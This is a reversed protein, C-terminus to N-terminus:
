PRDRPRSRAGSAAPSSQMSAPARESAWFAAREDECRVRWPCSALHDNVMGVAQMMSYLTTPGVYTWGRSRLAKSLATSEATTPPVSALRRPPSKAKTPAYRWLFAAISGAERQLELARAANNIASEIKGRHRVISADGLLRRVDKARFAAVRELDFDAFARRFHERKRLITIWSLGCLFGELCLKEFLCRDDAVPRGWEDDHYSVYLPDTGCWSCRAAPDLATLPAAVRVQRTARVTSRPTPPKKM